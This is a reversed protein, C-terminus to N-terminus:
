RARLRTVAEDFTSVAVIELGEAHRRAEEANGDPVVFVDAGAERAGITKQQIGGVVEVDGDLDLAGTVVIRRGRDLDDRGLEDVVDLAFALGASPGGVDGVDIEIDVPFTFEAAQTPVFGVVARSPDDAAERTPIRLTVRREGRLVVLEVESGPRVERMAALLADPSAVAEGNAEVVVDGVELDEDAPSDPLISVVEVGIRDVGVRRGLSRLAVAVAIEQSRSMENESERRRQGESVGHPNVARGPVLSSGDAVGPLLREVLSARRVFIDVMYVGSEEEGGEGEGPVSVLPDVPRAPDPLFLYHSSCAVGATRCTFHAGAGAVFTLVVVFFALGALRKM